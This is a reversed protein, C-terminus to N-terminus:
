KIKTSKITHAKIGSTEGEYRRVERKVERVQGKRKKLKAKYKRRYKVRPNREEKKRSPILGKNKSIQYTIARRGDEDLMDGTEEEVPAKAEDEEGSSAEAEQNLVQKKEKQKWDDDTLDSDDLLQSLKNKRVDTDEDLKSKKRLIQLTKPKRKTSAAAAKSSAEVAAKIDPIIKQLQPTLQEDCPTLEQLLQRYQALRGLVPHNWTSGQNTKILMYVSVTCVYNLVLRYKTTIYQCISPSTIHDGKVGEMLPGLFNRLEACKKKLDEVLPLFEPSERKLLQLKKSKSLRSLNLELSSEVQREKPKEEEEEQPILDDTPLHELEAALRDQLKRAAEEELRNLEEKDGRIQKMIREDTTDTGIYRKKNKGWAREDDEREKYEDVIDDEMFMEDEDSDHDDGSDEDDSSGDIALVQERSFSKTGMMKKAKTLALMDTEDEYDDVEDHVFGRSTPDVLSSSLNDVNRQKKGGPTQGGGHSKRRKGM